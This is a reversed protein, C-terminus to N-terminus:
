LLTLEKKTCCSIGISSGAACFPVNKRFFIKENIFNPAITEYPIPVKFISNQAHFLERFLPLIM